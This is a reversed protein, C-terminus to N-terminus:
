QWPNRDGGRAADPDAPGRRFASHFRTLYEFNSGHEKDAYIMLADVGEEHMRALIKAKRSALTDDTLPVPAVDPFAEPAETIQLQVAKYDM